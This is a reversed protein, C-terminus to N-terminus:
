REAEDSGLQSRQILSPPEAAQTQAHTYLTDSELKSEPHSCVNTPPNAIQWTTPPSGGGKLTKVVRQM